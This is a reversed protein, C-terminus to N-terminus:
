RGMKGAKVQFEEYIVNIQKEFSDKLDEYEKVFIKNNRLPDPIPDAIIIKKYKITAM